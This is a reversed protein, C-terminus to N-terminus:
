AVEAEIQVDTRHPIISDKEWLVPKWGHAESRCSLMMEPKNCICLRCVLPGSCPGAVHSEVDQLHCYHKSLHLFRSIQPFNMLGQYQSCTQNVMQSPHGCIKSEHILDRESEDELIGATELNVLCLRKVFCTPFNLKRLIQKTSFDKLSVTLLNLHLGFQPNGLQLPM